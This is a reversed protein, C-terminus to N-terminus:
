EGEKDKNTYSRKDSGRLEINYDINCIRSALRDGLADQMEQENLNSTFINAKGSNIRTDIISLLHEHEFPTACKTGIDDWIVLDCSLVNENIHQYYENPTSINAKLALLFSPVSIFLAKCKLDTKLWIKNFYSQLLRLSWSTKGNGVQSSHLYLQHGDNVFEEINDQIAKLEFFEKRDTGDSDILLTRHKRLLVPIQAKDYLYNLKFLILCGNEDNCHLQKCNNKLWCEKTTM